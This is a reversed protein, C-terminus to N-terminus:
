KCGPDMPLNYVFQFEFDASPSRYTAPFHPFPAAEQIAARSMDVMPERAFVTTLSVDEDRLSGDSQIKFQIVVMGKEGQRAERPISKQWVKRIMSKATKTYMEMEPGHQLFDEKLEYCFPRRLELLIAEYPKKDVNEISYLGQKEWLISDAAQPTDRQSDNPLIRKIQAPSLNILLGAAFQASETVERPGVHVFLVRVQENTLGAHFHKPDVDVPDLASGPVTVQGFGYSSLLAVFL